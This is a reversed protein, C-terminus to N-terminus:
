RRLESHILYSAVLFAGLLLTAASLPYEHVELGQKRGSLYKVGSDRTNERICGLVGIEWDQATEKGLVDHGATVPVRELVSPPGECGLDPCKPSREM